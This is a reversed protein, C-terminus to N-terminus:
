SENITGYNQQNYDEALESSSSNDNLFTSLEPPKATDYNNNM